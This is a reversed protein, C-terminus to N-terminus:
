INKVLNKILNEMSHHHVVQERLDSKMKEKKATELNLIKIIKSGLELSDGRFLVLDEKYDDLINEFTKNLVIVPVGSSMAELVAKDMGGTPCLNILLDANHYQEPMDHHSVMGLFDVYKEIKKDKVFKKIEKLYNQDRDYVPEGIFNFKVNHVGKKNVLYDVARVLLMQNKIESIRGVYVVTPQELSEVKHVKSKRGTFKNVDIGHGVVKAKKSNLQFSDSSATFVTSVFKEAIRLKLNVTKHTYWMVVRKGMIKWVWGGLVGYEPNMHIFVRDYNKREQWIYKYFRFIYFLRSKVKSKISKQGFDEKGLSLIKVNEPLDYEGKYLCIVTLREYYKAFERVWGHFFGLLDDNKDIKQTLILLKM